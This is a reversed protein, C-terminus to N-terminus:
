TVPFGAFMSGLHGAAPLAQGHLQQCSVVNRTLLASGADVLLPAEGGEGTAYSHCLQLYQFLEFGPYTWKCLNSRKHRRDRSLHSAGPRPLAQLLDSRLDGLLALTPHQFLSCSTNFCINFRHSLLLNRFPCNLKYAALINLLTM